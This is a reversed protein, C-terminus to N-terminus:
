DAAARQSLVELAVGQPSQDYPTRSLGDDGMRTRKGQRPQERRVRM